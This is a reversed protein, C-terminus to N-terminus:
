AGRSVAGHATGPRDRPVSWVRGDYCAVLSRPRPCGLTSWWASPRAASARRAPSGGGPTGTSTSCAGWTTPSSPTGATRAGPSATPTARHKSSPSSRGRADNADLVYSFPSDGAVALQGDHGPRAACTNVYDEYASWTWSRDPDALDHVVVRRDLGVSVVRRREGPLSMVDTADDRHGRLEALRRGDRPDIIKIVGCDRGGEFGAGVLLLNGTRDDFRVTEVLATQALFRRRLDGTRADRLTVFGLYNAEALLAGDSSFAVTRCPTATRLDVHM